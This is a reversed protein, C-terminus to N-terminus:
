IPEQTKLKKLMDDVKILRSDRKATIEEESRGQYDYFGKSTKAGLHGKSVLEEIM